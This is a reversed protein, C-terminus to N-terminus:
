FRVYRYGRSVRSCLWQHFGESFGVVFGIKLGDSLTLWYRGNRLGNTLLDKPTDVGPVAACLLFLGVVLLRLKM